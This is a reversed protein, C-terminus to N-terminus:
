ETTQRWFLAFAAVTVNLEGDPASGQRRITLENVVLRPDTSTLAMLFDTIANLDGVVNMRVGAAEGAGPSYDQASIVAVGAGAAATRMASQLIAAPPSGASKVLFQSKAALATDRATTWRAFDGLRNRQRELTVIERRLEAIKEHRKLLPGPIAFWLAAGTAAIVAVALVVAAARSATIHVPPTM